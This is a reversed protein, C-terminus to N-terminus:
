PYDREDAEAQAKTEHVTGPRHDPPAYLTVLRLPQSGTNIFNHRTGAPVVVLYGASFPRKSGELVSEGSGEVAFLVQDNGQHIEEGIEEGPRLTMLVLQAHPSTSLVRRFAENDRAATLIDGFYQGNDGAM